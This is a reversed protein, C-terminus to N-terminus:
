GPKIQNIQRVARVGEVRLRVEDAPSPVVENAIQQAGFRRLVIRKGSRLLGRTGQDLAGPATTNAKGAIGTIREVGLAARAAHLVCRALQM